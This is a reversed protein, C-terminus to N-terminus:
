HLFKTFLERLVDPSAQGKTRAMGQGVLFQLVSGKGKKYDEVAKPNAKIVDAVVGELEAADGILRKGSKAMLTEPDEGTEVM